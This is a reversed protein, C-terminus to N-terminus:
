KGLGGGIKRDPIRSAPSNNPSSWDNQQKVLRLLEKQTNLTERQIYGQNTSTVINILQSFISNSLNSSGKEKPDPTKQNIDSIDETMGEIGFILGALVSVAGLAVAFPGMAFKSAVSFQKVSLDFKAVGLNFLRVRNALLFQAGYFLNIATRIPVVVGAFLALGQALQKIVPYNIFTTLTGALYTMPAAFINALQSFGMMSDSLETIPDKADEMAKTLQPFILASQGGYPQLLQEFIKSSMVDTGLNGQLGKITGAATQVMQEIIAKQRAPNTENALREQFGEAIGLLQLQGYSAKSFFQVAQQILENGRGGLSAGFAGFGGAVGAGAGLQSQIQLSKSLDATLKLIEDQRTGYVRSFHALNVALHQAERQNLMLYSTNAGLFKILSETSQGTVKMRALLGLTSKDLKEVGKERLAIVQATMEEIGAGLTISAGIQDFSITQILDKETALSRNNLDSLKKMAKGLSKLEDLGNKIIPIKTFKDFEKAFREQQKLYKNIPTRNLYKNLSDFQSTLLGLENALQSFNTM